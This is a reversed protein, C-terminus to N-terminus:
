YLGLSGRRRAFGIAWASAAVGAAVTAVSLAALVALEGAAEGWGEGELLAARVLDLAWTFPSLAALAELWRPLLERPFFEGGLFTLAVVLWGVLAEARRLALVSAAGVLGVGVFAVVGIALAAAALGWNADPLEVGFLSAVIALVVVQPVAFVLPGAAAGLSFRV